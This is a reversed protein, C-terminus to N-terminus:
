AEKVPNLPFDQGLIVPRKEAISRRLAAEVQLEKLGALGPIPPAQKLRISELYANISAAFSADYQGWRSKDPSLRLTESTSSTTDMIDLDGDLDHLRIRGREHIMTLEFLDFDFDIAASGLLTGTAGSTFNLAASLDRAEMDAGRHLNRGELASVELIDGAFHHILDIVHSWCAYHTIASVQQLEGLNLENRLKLARQVQLFFRYNFIMAMSVGQKDATQMLSQATFFDAESVAAQGASAVLPKECFVRRTGLPLLERLVDARHQENTLVFVSDPEWAVLDTITDFVQGGFQEACESAKTKTRNYYCLSVDDHAALFPLYNKTAVSGTGIIGIKM